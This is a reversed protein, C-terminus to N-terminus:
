NQKTAIMFNSNKDKFNYGIGFGIPKAGQQKYLSDLDKQYFQAFMPIPKLYQGFFSYNWKNTDDLFYHFAIGSDDQIVHQSQGLIVKRIMSFYDKHMLYSAGKLYTNVTGMNKLYAMFGNNHKLGGDAANLSFYYVTKSQKNVDIFKIEVGRTNTKLKKLDTFSKVFQINGLSDVTVPKASSFQNGTRKLFLFLLHLTGDVEKNKLDKSMSETRFFSFKLIANLSTNVKNYYVDLSDTEEKKFEPLSGVPELGIMVYKDAEPFFTQAHLIDPGSFPYFLTTQPKVVKSIENDKFKKLNMLRTSDYKMWRKDFNKSFVKFDSTSQVYQYIPSDDVIGSMLNAIANLSDNVPLEMKKAMQLSDNLPTEVVAEVKATDKKVDTHNESASSSCGAIFLVVAVLLSIQKLM